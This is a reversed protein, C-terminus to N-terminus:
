NSAKSLENYKTLVERRLDLFLKIEELKNKDYFSSEDYNFFFYGDIAVILDDIQSTTLTKPL